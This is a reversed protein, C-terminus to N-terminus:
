GRFSSRTSQLNQSANQKLAAHGAIKWKNYIEPHHDRIHEGASKCLVLNEIRNDKKNENKHHVVETPLLLRGLHQEMVIRHEAVYGQKQAFPHERDHVYVYGNRDIKDKWQPHDQGTMKGRHADSSRKRTLDSVVYGDRFCKKSCWKSTLERGARTRFRAGCTSCSKEM